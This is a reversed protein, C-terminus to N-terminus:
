PKMVLRNLLLLLLCCCVVFLLFPPEDNDDNDDNGHQLVIMTVCQISCFSLSLITHSHITAVCGPCRMEDVGDEM